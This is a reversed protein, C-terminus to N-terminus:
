VATTAQVRARARRVNQKARIMEQRDELKVTALHKEAAELEVRAKTPDIESGLEAQTVLVIAENAEVEVFGGMLAVTQWANNQRYRLVGTELASMLPAHDTLIGLQGTTSPLIVEDTEADVVTRDPSIVKLSLGM